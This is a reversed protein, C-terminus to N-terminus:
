FGLSWAKVEDIEEFEADLEDDQGKVLQRMFAADFRGESLEESLELPLADFTRAGLLLRRSTLYNDQQRRCPLRLWAWRPLQLPAAGLSRLGLQVMPRRLTGIRVM